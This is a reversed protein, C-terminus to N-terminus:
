LGFAKPGFIESPNPNAFMSTRDRVFSSPPNEEEDQFNVPFPQGTGVPLNGDRIDNLVISFDQTAAYVHMPTMEHKQTLKNSSIYIDM